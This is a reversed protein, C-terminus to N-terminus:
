KRWDKRLKSSRAMQNFLEWAAGDYSEVTTAEFEADMIQEFLNSFLAAADRDLPAVLSMGSLACMVEAKTAPRTDQKKAVRQILEKCHQRYVDDIVCEFLEDYMLLRFSGHTADTQDPYKTKALEIEEEAIEMRRFAQQMIGGLIPGFVSAANLRKRRGV